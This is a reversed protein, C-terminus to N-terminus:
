SSPAILRQHFIQEELILQDIVPKDSDPFLAKTQPLQYLYYELTKAVFSRATASNDLELAEQAAKMLYKQSKTITSLALEPNDRKLLELSHEYRRNAYSVQLYLREQPTAMELKARDVAMVVPYAVHDPLVPQGMYFQRSSADFEGTASLATNATSFSVVLVLLAFALGISSFLLRSHRM